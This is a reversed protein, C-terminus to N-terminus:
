RPEALTMPCFEWCKSTWNWLVVRGDFTVGAMTQARDGNSDNRANLSILCRLRVEEVRQEHPQFRPAVAHLAHGINSLEAGIETEEAIRRLNVLEDVISALARAMEGRNYDDSM